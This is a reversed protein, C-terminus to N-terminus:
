VEYLGPYPWVSVVYSWTGMSPKTSNKTNSQGYGPNHKTLVFRESSWRNTSKQQKQVTQYIYRNSIHVTKYRLTWHCTGNPLVYRPTACIMKNCTGKHLVYRKRVCEKRHHVTCVTINKSCVVPLGVDDMLVSACTIGCILWSRLDGVAAYHFCYLLLSASHSTLRPPFCRVTLSSKLLICVNKQIKM